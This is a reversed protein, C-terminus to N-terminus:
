ARLRTPRQGRSSVFRTSFRALTRPPSAGSALPHRALRLPILSHSISKEVHEGTFALDGEDEREDDQGDDPHNQHQPARAVRRVLRVVATRHAALPELVLGPGLRAASGEAPDDRVERRWRQHGRGRALRRPADRDREFAEFIRGRTDPAIGPGHDTVAVRVADADDAIDVEIPKDAPGYKNANDILNTVVEEIRVGDVNMPDRLSEPGRVKIDHGSTEAFEGAADRVLAVLDIPKRDLDLQGSRIRSIDLLRELLVRLKEAGQRVLAMDRALAQRDYDPRSLRREALQLRAFVTTLPTRLEHAAIAIFQERLQLADHVAREQESVDRAISLAGIVRGESDHAPSITVSVSIRKGDKRVRFTRYHDVREGRRLREMIQPLEDLRDPPILISIPRGVVEDASYGYMREAGKNWSVIVGDLNKGIIADDSSDVIEALYEPSWAGRREADARVDTKVVPM